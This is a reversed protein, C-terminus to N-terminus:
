VYDISVSGMHCTGTIIINKGESKVAYSQAIKVNGMHNEITETVTWEKPVHISLSGMHNEVNLIGGGSYNEANEFFIDTAGMHNEVQEETFEAADIYKTSQGTIKFKHGGPNFEFGCNNKIRKPFVLATGITLLLAILIVTWNSIINESPFNCLHAIESEFILFIFAAPFFIHPIRLKYVENGLWALCVVGLIVKIAPIGDIIGIGTGIGELILLVAICILVLGWFIGKRKM